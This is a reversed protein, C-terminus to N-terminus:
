ISDYKVSNLLSLDRACVSNVPFDSCWCFFPWAGGCQFRIKERRKDQRTKKQRTEGRGDEGRERERDERETERQKQRDRDTETHHQTKHQPTTHPRHSMSFFGTHGSLVDGNTREFVDGNTGAGRACMNFCM